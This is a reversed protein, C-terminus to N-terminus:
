KNKNDFLSLSLATTSLKVNYKKDQKNKVQKKKISLNQSRKNQKTKKNNFVKNINNEHKYLKKNSTEDSYICMIKNIQKNIKTEHEIHIRKM